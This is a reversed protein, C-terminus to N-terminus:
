APSRMLYLGHVVAFGIALLTALLLLLAIFLYDGRERKLPNFVASIAYGGAFGGVHATNDVGPMVFGMLILILAYNLATAHIYSSGSKRGYHLLAGLLGLVSASAGMSFASGGLFPIPVPSFPAASSLLFGCFGSVVYVIITRPTGILDILAPALDRVWLMNFLIHLFNGHLWSASLLTWWWGYYFVPVGGSMGFMLLASQSPALISMGRGVVELGPGSVLLTLVYITATAGIVIEVFGLDTGLQRLAPGFGWLGPNARGCTYCKDDRVGVLSGCSPCVVSGTTRRKLM